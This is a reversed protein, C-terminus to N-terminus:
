TPTRKRSFLPSPARWKRVGSGACPDLDGFDPFSPKPTSFGWKGERGTSFIPNKQSLGGKEQATPFPPKEVGFGEKGSKPPKSGQAPDPPESGEVYLILAISPAGENKIHYKKKHKKRMRLESMNPPMSRNFDYPHHPNDFNNEHLLRQCCRKVRSRSMSCWPCNEGGSAIFRHSCMDKRFTANCLPSQIIRM